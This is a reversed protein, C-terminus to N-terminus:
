KAASPKSLIANSLSMVALFLRDVLIQAEKDDLDKLELKIQDADDFAKQGALLMPAFKPLDWVNVEGDQRAKALCEGLIQLSSIAELTNKIDM